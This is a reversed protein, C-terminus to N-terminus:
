EGFCFGGPIPGARFSDLRAGEPTFRYVLGRQVYDIADSAYLTGTHPDVGLGYFTRGQAPVLSTAPLSPASVSLSRVGDLLFYLQDGQPSVTLESPHEGPGFDWHGTVSRTAPDIRWLSGAAGGLLDGECLLWLAGAQDQVLSNGGLGVPLSDIIADRAPDIVYLWPRQMHSVFVEGGVRILAESWGPLAVQGTVSLTALDVIHLYGAYLDTVYAKGPSVEALYRPSTLGEIRGLHAISHPDVVEIRGSNNVVLYAREDILTMSQLVDGLPRGNERAFVGSVVQGSDPYYLDLSANGWQFNGENLIYVPRAPLPAVPTPDPLEPKCAALALALLWFCSIRPNM